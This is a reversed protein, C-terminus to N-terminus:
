KRPVDCTCWYPLYICDSWMHTHADCPLIVYKAYKCFHSWFMHAGHRRIVHVGQIVSHDSWLWELYESWVKYVQLLFAVLDYMFSQDCMCWPCFHSWVLYTCTSQGPLLPYGIGSGFWFYKEIGSGYEIWKWFWRTNRTDPILSFWTKSMVWTRKKLIPWWKYYVTSM